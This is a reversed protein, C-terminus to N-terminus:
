FAHLPNPQWVALPYAGLRRRKGGAQGGARVPKAALLLYALATAALFGLACGQLIKTNTFNSIYRRAPLVPLVHLCYLRYM